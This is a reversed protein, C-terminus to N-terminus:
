GQEAPRIKLVFWVLVVAGLAFVTDGPARMWRLAQMLPTQLFEMSRAYWYSQSVSALTQLLGVPLLSFVTMAFLGCNVSGVEMGGMTQWINQGQGVEGDGIVVRGERTVVREPIPPMEQYIRTGIWGLISFSIVIVAGFALWLRKM